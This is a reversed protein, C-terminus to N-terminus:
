RRAHGRGPRAAPRWVCDPGPGRGHAVHLRHSGPGARDAVVRATTVARSPAGGPARARRHFRAPRAGLRPATGRGPRRDDGPSLRDRADTLQPVTVSRILSRAALYRGSARWPSSPSSSIARFRRAAEDYQTAYFYAAATQHERDARILGDAWAPAPAPLVLATGACNQFVAAQGALWDAVERSRAGYRAARANYTTVASEFAADLCNDFSSYEQSNRMASVPRLAQAATAALERDQLAQWEDVPPLRNPPRRDVTVAELRLPASGGLTRYAQLLYRRAFTPKVVGLDGREFGKVDAPAAPNITILDELFPGCALVAATLAAALTAVTVLRGRWRAGHSTM